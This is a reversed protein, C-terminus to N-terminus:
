QRLGRGKREEKRRSGGRGGRWRGGFRGGLGGRGDTLGEQTGEARKDGDRWVDGSSHAASSRLTSISSWRLLGSREKVVRDRSDSGWDGTHQCGHKGGGEGSGGESERGWRDRWGGSRAEGQSGESARVGGSNIPFGGQMPSRQTEMGGDVGRRIQTEPGCKRRGGCRNLGLNAVVTRVLAAAKV